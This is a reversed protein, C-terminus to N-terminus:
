STMFVRLTRPYLTHNRLPPFPLVTPSTCGRVLLRRRVWSFFYILYKTREFGPFLLISFFISNFQINNYNNYNSVTISCSETKKKEIRSGILFLIM